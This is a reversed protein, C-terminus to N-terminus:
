SSRQHAPLRRRRPHCVQVYPHRPFNTSQRQSPVLYKKRELLEAPTEGPALQPKKETGDLVQHINRFEYRQLHSFLALKFAQFDAKSLKLEREEACKYFNTFNNNTDPDDADQYRKNADSYPVAAM